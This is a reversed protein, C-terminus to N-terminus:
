YLVPMGQVDVDHPAPSRLQEAIRDNLWHFYLAAPASYTHSM